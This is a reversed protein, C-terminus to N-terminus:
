LIKLIYKDHYTLKEGANFKIAAQRYRERRALDDAKRKAQAKIWLQRGQELTKAKFKLAQLWCTITSPNFSSANDRIIALRKEQNAPDELWATRKNRYDQYNGVGQRNILAERYYGQRNCHRGAHYLALAISAQHFPMDDPYARKVLQLTETYFKSGIEYAIYFTLRKPDTLKSQYM